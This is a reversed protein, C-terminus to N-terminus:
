LNAIRTLDVHIKAPVGIAVGGRPVDKTLVTNLGIMSFDGISIKGVIKAGPAIYVQGGIIPIDKEGKGQGITVQNMIMCNPGIVSDPHIVIGNPHPLLLGGGIETTLQIECQTVTSWFLHQISWFRRQLKAIPGEAHRVRQWKRICLLLRRSPDWLKRPKERSWDPKLSVHHIKPSPTSM